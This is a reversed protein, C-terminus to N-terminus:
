LEVKNLEVFTNIDNAKVMENSVTYLVNDIYLIRRIQKNYYYKDNQNNEDKHDIRAKLYFGEDELDLGYVLAGEFETEGYNPIGDSDIKTSKTVTAPFAIINKEEDFLLAKHTNSLESYSGRDGIKVSYLEKPNEFDSIDFLAMKLGVEYATEDISGDWAKYQKVITDKGFGILYNEKYPHLYDSYGPIKLEGLVKPNENDSLDIVFLPDVNKFTVIYCKDGMFRVSYIREGKALGEIEGVIEMNKNLIYLNNKSNDNWTDGTTTAIRFYEGNEDMSFQNLLAGPVTGMGKYETKGNDIAFKYINTTTKTEAYYDYLFEEAIQKVFGPREYIAQTVYLSNKSAYIENGSGLYSSIQIENDNNLNFGAVILCSTDEYGPFYCMETVDICRYNEAHATDRYLPMIEDDNMDKRYYMYKNSVLYIASGIKRSSIYNGEIEVKRVLEFTNVDYIAAIAMDKYEIKETDDNAAYVWRNGYTQAIVVIYDGDVYLESPYLSYKQNYGDNFRIREIIKMENAPYARTIILEDNTLQYINKGDTKVIDAEDVGNVQVNTESYEGKSVAGTAADATAGNMALSGEAVAMDDVVADFIIGGTYYRDNKSAEKLLEKLNEITGVKPLSTVKEEDYKITPTGTNNSFNIISFAITFVLLCSLLVLVLKKM